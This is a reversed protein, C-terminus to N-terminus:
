IGLGVALEFPISVAELGKWTEIELSVEDVKSALGFTLTAASGMVMYGSSGTEIQAGSSDYFRIEKIQDKLGATMELGIEIGESWESEEVDGVKVEGGKWPVGTGKTLSFKEITHLDTGQSTQYVLTGEVMIKTAGAAPRGNSTLEISGYRKDDSVAPFSGWDVGELLNKGTDDTMSAVSCDDDLIEVVKGPSGADIVLFLKTGPNFSNFATLESGDKGFGPGVVQIGGVKVEAALLPAAVSLTAVAILATARFRGSRSQYSARPVGRRDRYTM